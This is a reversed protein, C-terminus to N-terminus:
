RKKIYITKAIVKKELKRHCFYNLKLTDASKSVNVMSNKLAIFGTTWLITLMKHVSPKFKKLVRCIYQGYLFSNSKCCKNSNLSAM